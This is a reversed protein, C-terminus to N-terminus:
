YASLGRENYSVAWLMINNLGLGDFGYDLMLTTTETGYGRNWCDKEGIMVGFEATRHRHEINYLRTTGIPRMAAREYITLLILGHNKNDDEYRAEQADYTVSPFGPAWTRMVEFDNAWKHYLPILDRRRPGLAVTEGAINIIPQTEREGSQNASM